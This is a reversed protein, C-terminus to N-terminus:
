KSQRTAGAPPELSFDGQLRPWRRQFASSLPWNESESLVFICIENNWLTSNRGLPRWPDYFIVFRISRHNEKTFDRNMFGTQPRVLLEPQLFDTKAKSGKVYQTQCFLLATQTKSTAERKNATWLVASTRQIVAVTKSLILSWKERFARISSSAKWASKGWFIKM